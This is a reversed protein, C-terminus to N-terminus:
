TLKQLNIALADKQRFTFEYERKNKEIDKKIDEIKQNNEEARLNKIELFKDKIAVSLRRKEDWSESIKHQFYELKRSEIQMQTTQDKCKSDLEKHSNSLKNSDLQM